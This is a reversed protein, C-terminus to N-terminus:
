DWDLEYSTIPTGGIDSTSTLGTWNIKIQTASTASDETPAAM